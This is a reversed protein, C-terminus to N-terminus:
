SRACCASGRTQGGTPGLEGRGTKPRTPDSALAAPSTTSRSADASSCCDLCRCGRDCRASVGQCRRVRAARAFSALYSSEFGKCSFLTSSPALVRPWLTLTACRAHKRRASFRVARRSTLSPRLLDIRIISPWLGALIVSRLVGTHEANKDYTEDDYGGVARYNSRVFGMEQLHSLLEVRNTQIDRLTSASIFHRDCWERMEANSRRECAHEAVACVAEADVLLDSRCGGVAFSARAKSVRKGSRSRHLAFLPKRVVHHEGSDAHSGSMWLDDWSSCSPWDCIWRCSRWISAWSTLRSRYGRDAHLAGAEILNTLAADMSALSPPDLAKNLYLQVDEDQRMSKVQLFLSELPVRRMEPTQQASMKREDVFRPYLRFCEGARVRGARGRRQKCAARSAWCEVLRTLGSEPEFRTEKVRGTDVVYSVDPITISTEAVNTPWWSRARGAVYPSSCRASSTPRCIRM